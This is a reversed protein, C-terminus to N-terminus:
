KLIRVKTKTMHSKSPWSTLIGVKAGYSQIVSEANITGVRLADDIGMDNALAAVLGSGFADGAGTRSITKIGHPRVFWTTGDLHAYAGNQGDTIILTLGPLAIKKCLVEPDKTKSRALVQAEELNLNLVTLHKMIPAMARLGQKLESSGPNYALRIGAKKAARVIRLALAVNGALSTMYIWRAKLKSWSIDKPTFESSVGRHVLVSREGTLTTLLASYGTDGGRIIKVLATKVKHRKLDDIVDKGPADDGVRTIVATNFGLSSFTVASNTGGGGTTLVLKDVEIKSGLSVCEGAGTPFQSSKIIRFAKSVLFVDRTASGITIVDYM